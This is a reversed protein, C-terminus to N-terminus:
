RSCMNARYLNELNDTREEIEEALQMVAVVTDVDAPKLDFPSGKTMEVFAVYRAKRIEWELLDNKLRSLEAILMEQHGGYFSSRDGEVEINTRDLRTNREIQDLERAAQAVTLVERGLLFTETRDEWTLGKETMSEEIRKKREEDRAIRQEAREARLDAGGGMIGAAKMQADISKVRETARDVQNSLRKFATADNLFKEAQRKRYEAETAVYNCGVLTVLLGISVLATLFSIHKTRKEM